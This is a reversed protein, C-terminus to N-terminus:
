IKRIKKKSYKIFRASIVSISTMNINYTPLSILELFYETYKKIKSINLSLTIEKAKMFSTSLKVYIEVNYWGISKIADLGTIFENILQVNHM